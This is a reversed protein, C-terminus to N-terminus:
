DKKEELPKLWKVSPLPFPNNNKFPKNVTIGISTNNMAENREKKFGNELKPIIESGM